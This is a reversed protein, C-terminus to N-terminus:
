AEEVEIEVIEKNSVEDFVMLYNEKEVAFYVYLEHYNDKFTEQLFEDDAIVIVVDSIDYENELENDLIELVVEDLKENDEIQASIHKLSKAFIVVKTNLIEEHEEQNDIYLVKINQFVKKISQNSM